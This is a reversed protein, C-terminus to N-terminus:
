RVSSIIGLYVFFIFLFFKSVFLDIVVFGMWIVALTWFSNTNQGDFRHVRHRFM